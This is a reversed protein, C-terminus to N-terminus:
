AGEVESQFSCPSRCPKGTATGLIMPEKPVFDLIICSWRTTEHRFDYPGPGGKRKPVSFVHKNLDETDQEKVRVNKLNKSCFRLRM